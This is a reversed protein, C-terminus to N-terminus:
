MVGREPKISIVSKHMGERFTRPSVGLKKKFVRSFYLADQYGLYVAVQNVPLSSTILLQRAMSIRQDEIWQRVSVGLQDKFLHSFRSSSMCAIHSLERISLERALNEHIFHCARLIRQDITTCPRAHDFERCRILIQELLNLCFEESLFTENKSSHDVTQFLEDITEYSEDPIKLFGVNNITRSWNLWETWTARPRFYIWRHHWSDCDFHRGYDHTAQTPILMMDGKKVQVPSASNPFALGSGSVTLNIVYGKLGKPRDIWFDLEGGKYIPTLGAVLHANFPYGPKLPDLKRLSGM